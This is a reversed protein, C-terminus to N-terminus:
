DESLVWLELVRVLRDDLIVQYVVGISAQGPIVPAAYFRLPESGKLVAGNQHANRRLASDIHNVCRSLHIREDPTMSVWRRLLDDHAENEWTVTFRM